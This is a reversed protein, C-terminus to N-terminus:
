AAPWCDWGRHDLLDDFPAVDRALLAQEAELGRHLAFLVVEQLLAQLRQDVATFRIRDAGAHFDFQVGHLMEIGLGGLHELGHAHIRRRKPMM